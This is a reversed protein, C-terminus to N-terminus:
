IACDQKKRKAHTWMYLRVDLYVLYVQTSVHRYANRYAHRYVHRHVRRYCMDVCMDTGQVEQCRRRRHCAVAQRQLEAACGTGPFFVFYLSMLISPPSPGYSRLAM